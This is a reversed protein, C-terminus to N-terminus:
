FGKKKLKKAMDKPPKNPIGDFEGIASFADKEDAIKSDQSDYKEIENDPNERDAYITRDQEISDAKENGGLAESVHIYSEYTPLARGNKIDDIYQSETEQDVGADRTARDMSVARWTGNYNPNFTGNETPAYRKVVRRYESLQKPKKKADFPIGSKPGGFAPKKLDMFDDFNYVDKQSINFQDM